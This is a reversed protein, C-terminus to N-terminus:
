EEPRIHIVHQGCEVIRPAEALFPGAFVQDVEGRAPQEGIEERGGARHGELKRRQGVVRDDQRASADGYKLFVLGSLARDRISAYMPICRQRGPVQVEVHAIARSPLEDDGDVHVGSRKLVVALIRWVEDDLLHADMQGRLEARLERREEDLGASHAASLNVREVQGFLIGRHVAPGHGRREEAEALDFPVGNLHDRPAVLLHVHEAFVDIGAERM